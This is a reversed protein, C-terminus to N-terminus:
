SVGVSVVKFSDCSPIKLTLNSAGAGLSEDADDGVVKKWFAGIDTSINQIRLLAIRGTHRLFDRRCNSLNFISMGRRTSSIAWSISPTTADRAGNV